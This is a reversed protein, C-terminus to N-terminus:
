IIWLYLPFHLIHYQYLAVFADQLESNLSLLLPLSSLATIPLLITYLIHICTSLLLHEKEKDINSDISPNRSPLASDNLICKKRYCLLTFINGKTYNTIVYILRIIVAYGPIFM